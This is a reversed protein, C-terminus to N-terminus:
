GIDIRVFPEAHRVGYKAGVKASMELVGEKLAQVSPQSAHKNLAEIKDHVTESIDVAFNGEAPNFRALLLTAPKYPSFGQDLLEPFTLPDHAWLYSVDMAVQGAVRHDPHNIQGAEAFYLVSPDFSIVVDAKVKRIAKAVERQTDRNNALAGGPFDCFFVDDAGLLKASARQEDRRLDRVQEPTLAPDDSGKAGDTLVLYYVKAGQKAFAALSGGAYYDLDDPHAAVGLVAKPTLPPFSQQM